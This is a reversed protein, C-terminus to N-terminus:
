GLADDVLHEQRAMRVNSGTVQSHRAGHIFDLLSIVPRSHSTLDNTRHSFLIVRGDDQNGISSFTQRSRTGERSLINPPTGESAHLPTGESHSPQARV